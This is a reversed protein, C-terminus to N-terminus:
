PIRFLIPLVGAMKAWELLQALIFVTPIALCDRLNKSFLQADLTVIEEGDTRLSAPILRPIRSRYSAYEEGFIRELDAEEGRIAPWHALFFILVLAGAMTVSEFALGSGIFGMLSFLYLPNRVVSFPGKTVLALNKRGVLYVSAWIRGGAALLLLTLGGTSLLTDWLSDEAHSHHTALALFAIPIMLVRILRLRTNMRAM